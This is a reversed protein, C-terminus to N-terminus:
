YLENDAEIWANANVSRLGCGSGDTFGGAAQANMYVAGSDANFTHGTLTTLGGGDWLEFDTAGSSNGIVDVPSRMGATPLFFQASTVATVFGTFPLRDSVSTALWRRYYRTWYLNFEETFPRYEFPTCVAGIEIQFDVIQWNKATIAGCDMEIEIEIGREPNHSTLDIAQYKVLTDTADAIATGGDNGIASVASFTDAVDADRIYVTVTKSVGIDHYNKFQISIKKGQLTAGDKAEVRYLSHLKGGAGLTVGSWHIAFGSNGTLAGSELQTNTGASATQTTYHAFRAVKSYTAEAKTDHAAGLTIADRLAVQMGGNIAINKRGLDAYAKISQQSSVKVASDSVMTDEDLFAAGSIASIVVAGNYGGATFHGATAGGIVAHLKIGSSDYHFGAESGTGFRIGPAALTGVPVSRMFNGATIKKDAGGNVVVLLDTSLPASNTPLSSIAAM